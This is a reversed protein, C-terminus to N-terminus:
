KIFEDIKLQHMSKTNQKALFQSVIDLKTQLNTIIDDVYFIYIKWNNESYVNYYYQYDEILSYSGKNEMGEIIIGVNPTVNKGKQIQGKIVLDLRGIGSEVKIGRETLENAIIKTLNPMERTQDSDFKSIEKYFAQVDINGSYEKTAFIHIKTCGVSYNSIIYKVVREDADKIDDLLYYVEDCIRANEKPAKVIRINNNLIEFIDNDSYLEQLKKVFAKFFMFKYNVTHVIIDIKKTVDQYFKSVISQVMQDVNNYVNFYETKTFDLIYQNQSDAINGFKSNDKIYGKTFKFIYKSPLQKFLNTPSTVTASSDGFLVVQKAEFVKSYKFASTLHADDVLVLDFKSIDLDANIIDVDALFVNKYPLLAEVIKNYDNFSIHNSVRRENHLKNRELQRINIQCYNREFYNFNELWVPISSNELLIPYKNILDNQYNLYTSYIYVDSMGKSYESKLIGECLQKLGLKEFRHLYEFIHFVPDLEKLREEYKCMVRLSDDLSCELLTYQGGIFYRSFLNHQVLRKEALEDLEKFEDILNLIRNDTYLNRIVNPHILQKLFLGYNKEIISLYMCDTELGKYTDGLYEKMLSAHQDLKSLLNLYEKDANIILLLDDYSPITNKYISQLRNNVHIMKRLYILWDLSNYNMDIINEGNIKIGYKKVYDYQIELTEKSSLYEKYLKLFETSDDFLKYDYNLQQRFIRTEDESLNLIFNIWNIFNSAFTDVNFKGLINNKKCENEIRQGIELLNIYEHNIYDQTLKSKKLAKKDFFTPIIRLYNRDSLVTKVYDFQLYEEKQVFDNLKNKNDLYLTLLEKMQYFYDKVVLKNRLYYQPWSTSIDTSTLLTNLKLLYDLEYNGINDVDIMKKLNNLTKSIKEQEAKITNVIKQIKETETIISVIEDKNDKTLHTHCILSLLEEVDGTHYSEIVKSNLTEKIDVNNQQYTSIINLLENIKKSDYKDVWCKPPVIKTFTGIYSLLRQVGIFSEPLEIQYKKCFNKFKNNFLRITNVYNNTAQIIEKTHKSSYYQEVNSWVNIDLPEITELIKEIEKLDNYVHEIEHNRLNVDIPMRVIEPITNKIEALTTIIKNYRCGHISAELAQEYEAIPYLTEIGIKEERIVPLEEEEIKDFYTNKSLSYVYSTAQFSNLDKYIKNINNFDHSVYLVKKNKLVADCIANVITYTKGTGLKGDVVFSEGNEIKLLAWKQNINTPQVAKIKSFYEQQVNLANKEYISRQTSLDDFAIKNELYEISLVTLYNGITHEFNTAEAFKICYEHIDYITPNSSLPDVSIGLTAQIENKLINNVIPTSSVVVKNTQYDIEIPILVIPAYSYYIDNPLKYHLVGYTLFIKDSNSKYRLSELFTLQYKLENTSDELIHGTGESAIEDYIIDDLMVVHGLLLEELIHIDITGLEIYYKEELINKLHQNRQQIRFNTKRYSKM